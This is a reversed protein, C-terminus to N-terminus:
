VRNKGMWLGLLKMMQQISSKKSATNINMERLPVAMADVIEKKMVDQIDKLFIEGNGPSQEWDNCTKEEPLDRYEQKDLKM